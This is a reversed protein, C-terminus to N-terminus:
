LFLWTVIDYSSVHWQVSERIYPCGRYLPCVMHGQNVKGYVNEVKIRSISLGKNLWREPAFPDVSWVHLVSDVKKVYM